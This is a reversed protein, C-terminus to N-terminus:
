RSGGGILKRKTSQTKDMFKLKDVLNHLQELYFADNKLM